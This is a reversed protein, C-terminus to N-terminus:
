KEGQSLKNKVAAVCWLLLVFPIFWITQILPASQFWDLFLKLTQNKM